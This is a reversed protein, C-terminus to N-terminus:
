RTAVTAVANEVVNRINAIQRKKVPAPMPPSYAAILEAISSSIGARTRPVTSRMMLPENQSPVANPAARDITSSLSLMKSASTPQRSAKPSPATSPTPMRITRRCTGSLGRQINMWPLSSSASSSTSSMSVCTLSDAPTSSSFSGFFDILTRSCSFTPKTSIALVTNPAYGRRVTTPSESKM